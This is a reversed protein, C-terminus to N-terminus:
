MSVSTWKPPDLPCRSSPIYLKGTSCGCVGCKGIGNFGTKDWKDCNLCIEKRQNFVEPSVTNFKDKKAWDITSKILNTAQESISPKEKNM